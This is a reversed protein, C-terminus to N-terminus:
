CPLKGEDTKLADSLRNKASGPRLPKQQSEHPKWGLIFIVEFTAHIRGDSETFNDQYHQGALQFFTRSTFSKNRDIIVNGEGMMRVDHMLKFINDYTVTVKESDIVPLNFNARQMLAGMQPMDAFPFVRPSLGNSLQMEVRQFTQRLEHLTEGGLLAAVFLGDPKLTNQIQSLTGPLDNNSHLNLPSLVLDFSNSKFPLIEEDAIINSNLQSATDTTFLKQIKFESLNEIKTRNGIQLALPYDRKIPELREQIQKLAWDFLFNHQDITEAARNRKRQISKKDFVLIDKTM